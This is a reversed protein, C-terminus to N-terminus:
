GPETLSTAPIDEASHPITIMNFADVQQNCVGTLAHAWIPLLAPRGTFATYEDLLGAYGDGTFVYFDADSQM